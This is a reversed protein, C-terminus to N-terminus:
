RWRFRPQVIQVPAPLALAPKERQRVKEELEGIMRHVMSMGRLQMRYVPCCRHCRIAVLDTSEM